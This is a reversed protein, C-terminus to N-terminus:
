GIAAPTQVAKGGPVPLEVRFRTGRPHNPSLTIRGGNASVLGQVISLGLGEGDAGSDLAGGSRYFREFIRGRDGDPVGIGTDAVTMVAWGQEVGTRVEVTGGPETYKIANDILNNVMTHVHAEDALALVPDEGLDLLLRLGKEAMRREMGRAEISVADRLDLVVISPHMGADSRSLALLGQVIRTLRTVDEGVAQLSRQYEEPTRPKRLTIDVEQRIVTLPTLLQHAADATFRSINTFAGELRELLRNLGIGISIVEHDRYGEPDIRESLSRATVRDAIASIERLPLLARRALLYGLGGVAALLILSGGILIMGLLRAAHTLVAEYGNVQVWGHLRGFRNIPYYYSRIARGNVAEGEIAFPVPGRTLDPPPFIADDANASRFLLRGDRTFTQVSHSSVARILGEHEAVLPGTFDLSGDRHVVVSNAFEGAEHLLVADFEKHLARDFVVFVVVIFIGLSVVLLTAYYVTLRTSLSRIAM